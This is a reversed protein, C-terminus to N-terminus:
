IKLEFELGDGIDNLQEDRAPYIILTVEYINEIDEDYFFHVFGEAREGPELLRGISDSFTVNSAIEEGQNTIIRSENPYIDAAETGNNEIIIYVSLMDISDRDGLM